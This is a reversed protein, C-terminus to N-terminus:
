VIGEYQYKSSFAIIPLIIISFFIAAIGMATSGGFCRVLKVTAIMSIVVFALNVCPIFAFIILWPKMGVIQFLVILNYIPILAKWPDVGAKSYIKCMAIATWVVLIFSVVLSIISAVGAIGAFVSLDEGGTYTYSYSM